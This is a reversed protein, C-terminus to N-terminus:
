RRARDGPVELWYVMPAVATGQQVFASTLPIPFNYQVVQTDNGIITDTNPEYFFEQAQAYPKAIYSGPTFDQQWLVNGPYSYIGAANGPVDSLISLHFTTNPNSRDNLWSGWIHIGTIPGTTTCPFDDALVKVYPYQAQPPVSLLRWTANVDMGTITGPLSNLDPMQVYKTPMTPDWDAIAPVSLIAMVMVTLFAIVVTKM